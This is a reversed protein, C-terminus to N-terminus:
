LKEVVAFIFRRAWTMLDFNRRTIRTVDEVSLESIRGHAIANRDRKYSPNTEFLEKAIKEGESDLAYNLAQRLILEIRPDLIANVRPVFKVLEDITLLIANGDQMQKLYHSKVYQTVDQVREENTRKFGIRDRLGNALSEMCLWCSLFKSLESRSRAAQAYWDVSHYVDARSEPALGEIRDYLPLLSDRTEKNFVCATAFSPQLVEAGEVTFYLAPTWEYWCGILGLISLARNVRDMAEIVVVGMHEDPVRPVSIQGHHVYKGTSIQKMQEPTVTQPMSSTTPRDGRFPHIVPGNPFEIPVEMTLDSYVVFDLIGSDKSLVNQICHLLLNDKRRTEPVNKFAMLTRDSVSKAV